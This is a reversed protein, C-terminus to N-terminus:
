VDSIEVDQGDKVLDLCYRVDSIHLKKQKKLVEMLIYLLTKTKDVEDREGYIALQNEELKIKTHFTDQILNINEDLRGFLSTIMPDGGITIFDEAMVDVGM